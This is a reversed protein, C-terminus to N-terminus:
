YQEIPSFDFFGKPNINIRDFQEATMDHIPNFTQKKTEKKKKPSQKKTKKKM